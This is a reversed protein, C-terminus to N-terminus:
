QCPVPAAPPPHKSHHTGITARLLNGVNRRVRRTDPTRTPLSADAAPWGIWRVRASATSSHAHRFPTVRNSFMGHWLQLLVDVDATEWGKPTALRIGVRSRNHILDM